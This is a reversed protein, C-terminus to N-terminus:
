DSEFREIIRHACEVSERHLKNLGADNMVRYDIVVPVSSSYYRMRNQRKQSCKILWVPRVIEIIYVDDLGYAVVDSAGKTDVVYINIGDIDFQSARAGYYEDDIKTQAILDDFELFQSKKRKCTIRSTKYNQMTCM